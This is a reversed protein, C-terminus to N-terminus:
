HCLCLADKLSCSIPLLVACLSLASAKLVHQRLKQESITHLSRGALLQHVKLGTENPRMNIGDLSFWSRWCLLM